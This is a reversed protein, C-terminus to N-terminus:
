IKPVTVNKDTHPLRKALVATLSIMGNNGASVESAAAVSIM